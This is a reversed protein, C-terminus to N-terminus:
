AGHRGRPAVPPLRVADPDYRALLYFPRAAIVAQDLSSFGRDLAALELDALPTRWRKALLEAVKDRRLNEVRRRPGGLGCADNLRWAREVIERAGARVSGRDLVDMATEDWPVRLSTRSSRVLFLVLRESLPLERESEATWGALFGLREARPPLGYLGAHAGHRVAYATESGEPVEAGCEGACRSALARLTMLRHHAPYDETFLQVTRLLGLAGSRADGHRAALQWAYLFSTRHTVPQRPRPAPRRADPSRGLRSLLLLADERKPDQRHDVCYRRLSRAAAPTMGAEAAAQPLAAYSRLGFPRQAFVDVLRAAAAADCVGHRVAEAFTARMCVLPESVARYDDEATAHLLTVEDDAELLGAKYAAHVRGLGEMGFPELEVARLAGMSAAGVVRVGQDLLHLIEKHRVSGSQHFYGDVIGVTDGVRVDLRLLDGAAVPPLLRVPSGETLAAAGPLSPGIFCYTRPM